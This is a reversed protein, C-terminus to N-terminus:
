MCTVMLFLLALLSRLTEMAMDGFVCEAHRIGVEVQGGAWREGQMLRLLYLTFTFFYGLLFLVCGGVSRGTDVIRHMVTFGLLVFIGSWLM